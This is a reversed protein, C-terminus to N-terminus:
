SANPLEGIKNAGLLFIKTLNFMVNVIVAGALLALIGIVSLYFTETINEKFVKFDFVTISIFIFVWYLLLIMAVLAVRNTLAIIKDRYLHMKLIRGVDM